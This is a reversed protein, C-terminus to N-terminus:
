TAILLPMIWPQKRAKGINRPTFVLRPQLLHSFGTSSSRRGGPRLAEKYKGLRLSASGLGEYAVRLKPNFEIAHKFSEIAAADNGVKSLEMGQM